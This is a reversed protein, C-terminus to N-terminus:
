GSLDILSWIINSYGQHRTRTYTRSHIFPRICNLVPIKSVSLGFIRSTKSLNKPRLFTRKPTLPFAAAVQVGCRKKVEVMTVGFCLVDDEDHEETSDTVGPSEM